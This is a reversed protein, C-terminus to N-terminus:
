TVIEFVSIERIAECMQAMYCVFCLAPGQHMAPNNKPVALLGQQTASWPTSLAPFKRCGGGGGVEAPPKGERPLNLISCLLQGSHHCEYRFCNPRNLRKAVICWCQNCRVHARGRLYARIRAYHSGGKIRSFYIVTCEDFALM